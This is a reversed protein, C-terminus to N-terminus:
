RVDFLPDWNQEREGIKSPEQGDNETLLMLNLVDAADSRRPHGGGGQIKPPAATNM